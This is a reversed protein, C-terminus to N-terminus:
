DKKKKIDDEEGTDQGEEFDEPLDDPPQPQREGYKWPWSFLWRMAAM